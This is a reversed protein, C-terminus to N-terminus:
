GGIGVIPWAVEAIFTGHFLLPLPLVLWMLLWALGLWGMKEIPKGRSALVREVIVLGGHLLFYLLPLGYGTRVPFSIALEHLIGSFLFAILTAGMRGLCPSLPRYLALATMESFALNWRRGWFETLSRARLPAVFLPSCDAGLRRWVGALINFVGFHLALSLGPFLLLTPLAASGTRLWVIRALVILVVGVVFRTLGREVLTASGGFRVTFARVFLAPKMGPWLMAFGVWQLAGLEAGGALGDEVLVVVKLACLLMIIMVVMRVPPSETRCILVAVCITAVVLTWSVVRRAVASEIGRVFRGCFLSAAISGLAVAIVAPDQPLFATM